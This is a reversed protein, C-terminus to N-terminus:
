SKPREAAKPKESAVTAVSQSGKGGKQLLRLALAPLQEKTLKGQRFLALKERAHRIKVSHVKKTLHRRRAM